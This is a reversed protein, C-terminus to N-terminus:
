PDAEFTDIFYISSTEELIKEIKGYFFPIMFTIVAIHAAITGLLIDNFDEPKLDNFINLFFTWSLYNTLLSIILNQLGYFLQPILTNTFINSQVTLQIGLLIKTWIM